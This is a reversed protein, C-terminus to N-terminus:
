IDFCKGPANPEGWCSKSRPQEPQIGGIRATSFGLDIRFKWTFNFTGNGQRNTIMSWSTQYIKQPAIYSPISTYKIYLTTTVPQVYSTEMLSNSDQSWDRFLDTDEMSSIATGGVNLRQVMELAISKDIPLRFNQGVVHAGADGEQAHYLGASMSVIEIGNVFAYAVDSSGGLPPSFTIILPRNEEVNLCYEKVLSDLGLDEDEKVWGRFLEVKKM